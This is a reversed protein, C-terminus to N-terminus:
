ARDSELLHRLFRQPIETVISLVNDSKALLIHTYGLGNFTGSEKRLDSM